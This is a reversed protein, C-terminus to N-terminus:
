KLDDLGGDPNERLVEVVWFITWDTRLENAPFKLMVLVALSQKSAQFTNGIRMM